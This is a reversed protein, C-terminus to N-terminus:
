LMDFAFSIYRPIITIGKSVAFGKKGSSLGRDQTIATDAPIKPNGRPSIVNMAPKQPNVKNNSTKRETKATQPSTITRIIIM